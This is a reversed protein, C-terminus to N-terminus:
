KAKKDAPTEGKQKAWRKRQADAIKKRAAASMERKKRAPKAESSGASFSGGLLSALEQQMSEIKEQLKAARRLQSSSLM